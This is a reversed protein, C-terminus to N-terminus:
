GPILEVREAPPREGLVLSTEGRGSVLRLANTSLDAVIRAATEVGVSFPPTLSQLRRGELTFPSGGSSEVAPGAEPAPCPEARDLEHVAGWSWRSSDSGLKEVLWADARRAAELLTERADAALEDEGLLARIVAGLALEPCAVVPGFRSAPFLGDVLFGGLLVYYAAAGPSSAAATGDWDRLARCLALDGALELAARLRPLLARAALDTDDELASELGELSMEGESLEALRRTRWDLVSPGVSPESAAQEEAPADAATALSALSQWRGESQWGRVPLRAAADRVPEGGGVYTSVQGARDGVAIQVPLPARDFLGAAEAAEEASGARAVACLGPLATGLSNAGWCLALGIPREGEPPGDLQEVLHSLLPGHRTEAVELRLSDGDRVRVVERRRNLKQWGSETRFGGIGDLEEMVCDVDDLAAGVVGWAVRESRGAVLGPTGVHAVAAIKFDPGELYMPYLPGPESVPLEITTVLAAGRESSAAAVRGTPCGMPGSAAVCEVLRADIRGWFGLREDNPAVFGVPRAAIARARDIGGRALARSVLCKETWTDAAALWALHLEIALSDAITWPEIQFGLRECEPPSVVARAANVGGAFAALVDRAVGDMRSAAAAARRPIGATRVLADARAASPGAIEAWRGNAKRRLVDMAFLQDEAMAFGLAAYADRESKAYAHAIGETDRVLDVSAGLAALTRRTHTPGKSRRRRGTPKEKPAEPEPTDSLIGPSSSWGDGGFPARTDAPEPSPEPVGAETWPSAGFGGGAAGTRRQRDGPNM